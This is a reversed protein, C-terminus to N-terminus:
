LDKRAYYVTSVDANIKLPNGLWVGERFQVASNNSDVLSTEHEIGGSPARRYDYVRDEVMRAWDRDVM